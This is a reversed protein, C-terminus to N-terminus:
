EVKRSANDAWYRYAAYIILIAFGVTLIMPVPGDDMGAIHESTPSGRSLMSDKISAVEYALAPVIGAILLCLLLLSYPIARLTKM